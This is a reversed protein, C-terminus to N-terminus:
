DDYQGVLGVYWNKKGSITPYFDICSLNVSSTLGEFPKIKGNFLDEMPDDENPLINNLVQQKRNVRFCASYGKTDVVLGRGVLDRAFDWLLGDREKLEKVQKPNQIALEKLNTPPPYPGTVQEIKARWELDEIITFPKLDDPTAGDFPKPEVVLMTNYNINNKINNNDGLDIPIPYFIRGGAETCYADAKPLFPLRNLFTSTRMGSVLIFKITNNNNNRTTGNENSQQHHRHSYCHRRIEQILFLTQSSIIGRMGTSSPPLKLIRNKNNNNKKNSLSNSSSTKSIQSPYHLLTGDIDSFVMTIGKVPPINDVSDVHDHNNKNGILTVSNTNSSTFETTSSGTSMSIRACLFVLVVVVLSSYYRPVITTSQQMVLKELYM